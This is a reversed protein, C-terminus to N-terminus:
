GGKSKQLKEEKKQRRGKVRARPQLFKRRLIIEMVDDV